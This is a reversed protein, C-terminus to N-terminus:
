YSLASMFIYLWKLLIKDPFLIRKVNQLYNDGITKKVSWTNSNALTFSIARFCRESIYNLPLASNIQLEFKSNSIFITYNVIEVKVRKVM